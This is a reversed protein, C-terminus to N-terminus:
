VINPAYLTAPSSTSTSSPTAQVNLSVLSGVQRGVKGQGLALYMGLVCTRTLGGERSQDPVIRPRLKETAEVWRREQKGKM